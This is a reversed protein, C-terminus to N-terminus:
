EAVTDHFREFHMVVTGDDFNEMVDVFRRGFLVQEGWYVHRAHITQAFTGDLGTLAITIRLDDRTLDESTLGHLPSDEDITHFVQWSLLFVPTSSRQLPLDYFRRLRKGEKSTEWRLVSVRISAEVVDNGRENALRFTLTPVGDRTEVCARRSFLVRASPRSFKAFVIGTLLAITFLSVFAEVVVLGNGWSGQSYMFGYGIAAFTQVSFFFADLFSGDTNAVSGPVSWYGIAFLLNVTLYAAFALGVVVPWRARLLYAYSDTFPRPRNGTRRLYAELPKREEPETM